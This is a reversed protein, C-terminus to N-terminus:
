VSVIEGDGRTLHESLADAVLNLAISLLAIMAAPALTALPNVNMFGRGEAVMAGWDAQPPQVGLGLFNLTAVFIVGYTIRLAFDATTPAVINPLVERFLIAGTREGRAQAAAVYELTIVGQTAGRVIRGMRPMYALTIAIVLVLNSTGLGAIAVLVVLLPPLAMVLDFARAILGDAGGGKYAGLMGLTGGIACALGVAILPIVIITTGGTLLRSLTDRGLSDTGLLHSSSPGAVNDGVGIANPPYPTFFRGFVIVFLVVAALVVGIRGQRSAVVARWASPPRREEEVSEPAVLEVASPTATV